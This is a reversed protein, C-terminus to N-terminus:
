SRALRGVREAAEAMVPAWDGLAPPILAEAQPYWPYAATGLRTWATPEGLIALPAGVAGALAATANAVALSLDLAAALAALGDLDERLDLGPPQLIPRGALDALAALEAAEAGYQLNVFRVGPAALVPAWAELPPYHRRRDGALKGSRWTLGVAPPGEGLWARWHAVRAPDPKLYGPTDPFAELNRRFARCLSALPTWLDAKVGPVTRRPRAGSRDTAHAVVEAEPFSRRFLDVLRPEVAIALGGAAAQVDPLLNAFMLEDGLGQEAIALLQKGALRAGPAWRQGPGEFAASGPWDRSLRAEYADWGEGLAGRALALTAAAFDITAIELPQRALKRAAAFDAHAADLRALDFQAGGRNYLARAHRPDLRLAEDFFTLAAEPRGQQVLTVGLTNWLAAAQPNALLTEQLLATAEDFRGLERLARARGDVAELGPLRAWLREAIGHEGMREALRALAALLDPDEPTLAVAQQYADLAGALDGARELKLARARHSAAAQRPPSTM